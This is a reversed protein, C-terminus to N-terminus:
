ARESWDVLQPLEASNDYLAWADVAPAYPAPSFEFRM